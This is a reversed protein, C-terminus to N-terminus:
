TPFIKFKWSVLAPILPGLFVRLSSKESPALPLPSIGPEWPFKQIASGSTVENLLQLEFGPKLLAKAADEGQVRAEM